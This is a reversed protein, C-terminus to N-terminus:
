GCELGMRQRRISGPREEAGWHRVLIQEPGLATDHDVAQPLVTARLEADTQEAPLGTRARTLSAVDKLEDKDKLEYNAIECPTIQGAASVIL